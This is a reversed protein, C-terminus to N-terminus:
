DQLLEAISGGAHMRRIAEAFLPACSVVRLKKAVAGTLHFAAVTDTVVLSDLAANALLEGAEATFLGHSAAAYVRSAGHAECAAIARGLAAGTSM